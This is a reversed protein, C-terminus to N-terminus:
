YITTYIFRLTVAKNAFSANCYHIFRYTHLFIMFVEANWLKYPFSELAFSLIYIDVAAGAADEKSWANFIFQTTFAASIMKKCLGFVYHTGVFEYKYPHVM